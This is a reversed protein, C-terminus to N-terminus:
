VGAWFVHGNGTSTQVNVHGITSAHLAMNASLLLSLSQARLRTVAAATLNCAYAGSFGHTGNSFVVGDMDLDTLAASSIMAANAQATLSTATSIFTTNVIRARDAGAALELSAYDYQGQQCYCGIMQFNAGSVVITSNVTSDVTREEFWINRLQVAAGSVTLAVVDEGFPTLKVTPLGGSSGSGVIILNKSVTVGGAGLTETHGDLLVITDGNSANTVAQALTALPETSSLGRPSVDNVGISSDVYWILGSTILPKATVLTDGLPEGIGNFFTPM